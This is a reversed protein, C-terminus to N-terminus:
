CDQDIKKGRVHTRESWRADGRRGAGALMPVILAGIVSGILGAAHLDFVRDVSIVV